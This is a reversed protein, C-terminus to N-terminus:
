GHGRGAEALDDWAVFRISETLSAPWRHNRHPVLATVDAGTERAAAALAIWRGAAGPEAGPPAAAGVTAVILVPQGPAVPPVRGDPGAGDEVRVVSLRSAGVIHRCEAILRAVDDLYPLMSPGMDALVTAGRSTSQEILQPLAALPRQEAVLATAAEVDVDDAVRARRVLMTLAARLQHGPIPPEYPVSAQNPSAPQLPPEAQDGILEVPEDPLVDVITRQDPAARLDDDDVPRTTWAPAQVATPAIAPGGRGPVSGSPPADPEPAALGLLAVLANLQEPTTMGLRSAATLADAWGVPGRPRAPHEAV